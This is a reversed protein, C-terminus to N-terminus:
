DVQLYASIPHHDSLKVNHTRFQKAVFSSDYLLYDIRFSPFEGIYTRGLGSGSEIFADKRDGRITHYAYSAPTDNFDGLLINPHPSQDMHKRISDAQSARREFGFRIKTLMMFEKDFDKSYDNKNVKRMAKYDHKDLKISALHANYVRIIKGNKKIDTFTCVNDDKYQFPVVGKKVIPFRSFTVVGWHDKERLNTTYYTHYNKAKLFQVLTDLTKFEYKDHTDSHYFEQLCLVDPDEEELFNFIQNRTTKEKTWMYLDFVRVNFSLVKLDNAKVEEHDFRIQVFSPISKYGLIIVLLSLLFYRKGRFAWYLLFFFNLFLFYPLALGFFAIPWFSQPNIYAAGYALMLGLAALLNLILLSRNLFKFM